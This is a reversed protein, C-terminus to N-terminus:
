SNNQEDNRVEQDQNKLEQVKRFWSRRHYEAVKEPHDKQWQATYEMRRRKAEDTM